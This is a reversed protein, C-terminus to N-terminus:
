LSIHNQWTEAGNSHIGRSTWTIMKQKMSLCKTLSDDCQPSPGSGSRLAPIVQPQAHCFRTVQNVWPDRPIEKCATAQLFSSLLFSCSLFLSFFNLNCTVAVVKPYNTAYNSIVMIAFGCCGIMNQHLPPSVKESATRQDTPCKKWPKCVEKKKANGQTEGATATAPCVQTSYQKPLEAYNQILWGPAQLIKRQFEADCCIDHQLLCSMMQWLVSWFITAYIGDLLLSVLYSTKNPLM